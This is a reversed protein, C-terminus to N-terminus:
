GPLGHALRFVSRVEGVPERAHNLVAQHHYGALPGRAEEPLIELQLLTEIVAADRAREAGDEVKVTIGYAQGQSVAGVAYVGEGGSKGVLPIGFSAATRMLDHCLRGHSGSVLRPNSKMAIWIRRLGTDIPVPLADSDPDDEGDEIGAGPASSTAGPTLFRRQGDEEDEDEGDPAADDESGYFDEEMGLDADADHEESLSEPAPMSVGEGYAAFRAMALAFSRLPLHFSPAGCGDVGVGIEHLELGSLYALLGMIAVQVGHHPDTYDELSLRLHRALLLMGAHKGSCNNHLVSPAEGLRVLEHRTQRDFPAHPGCRLHAPGLAGKELIRRVIELHEPEGSHSGAIIALEEDTLYFADAAGSCVLALAQFPKACSRM